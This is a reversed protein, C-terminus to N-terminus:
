FTSMLIILNIRSKKIKVLKEQEKCPATTLARQAKCCAGLSNGTANQVCQLQIKLQQQTFHLTQNLQNNHTCHTQGAHQIAHVDRGDFEAVEESM